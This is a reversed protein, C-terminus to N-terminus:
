QRKALAAFMDSAWCAAKKEKGRKLEQASLVQFRTCLQGKWRRPNAFEEYFPENLSCGSAEAKSSAPSGRGLRCSCAHETTQM